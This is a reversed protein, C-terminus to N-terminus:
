GDHNTRHARARAAPAPGEGGARIRGRVTGDANVTRDIRIRPAGTAPAVPTRLSFLSVVLAALGVVAGLVSAVRDATELDGVTAYVVLGVATLAGLIAGAWALAKYQATM